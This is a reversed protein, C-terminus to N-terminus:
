PRGRAVGAVDRGHTRRSVKVCQGRAPTVSRFPGGQTGAGDRAPDLTGAYADHVEGDDDADGGDVTDPMADDAEHDRVHEGLPALATSTSWWHAEVHEMTRLPRSVVLGRGPSRPIYPERHRGM